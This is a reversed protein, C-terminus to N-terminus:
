KITNVLNDFRDGAEAEVKILKDGTASAPITLRSAHLMLRGFGQKKLLKDKKENGYKEDGVIPYGTHACHVRIQHTRGTIPRVALLSFEDNQCIVDIETRSPKGDTAVISMREGSSLTNKRLPLNIHQKRKPWRGHVIALYHKELRTKDNLLQQLNKLRSRKKAVMLCGSTDRDLRHVLELSKDDARLERLAEIVGISIGSGGHVAIGAPKNIILMMDDEYIISKYLINTIKQSPKPTTSQSQRVPPIRVKDGIKLKTSAKVRGGNVRVEGKRMCRYIKSKPVGKLNKLLFNDIRQGDSSEDIEVIRVANRPGTERSSM